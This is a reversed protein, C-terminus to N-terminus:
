SWFVVLVLVERKKAKQWQFESLDILCNSATETMYNGIQYDM